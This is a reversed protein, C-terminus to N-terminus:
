DALLLSGSDVRWLATACHSGTSSRLLTASCDNEIIMMYKRFRSRRCRKAYTTGFIARPSCRAPGRTACWPWNVGLHRYAVNEIEIPAINEGGRIGVQSISLGFLRNREVLTSSPVTSSCLRYAKNPTDLYSHLTNHGHIKPEHYFETPSSSPSPTSHTGATPEM